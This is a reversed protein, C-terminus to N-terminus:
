QKKLVTTLLSPNECAYTGGVRNYSCMVSAVHGQRVAADYAPLHIEQMTREDADSSDTMRNTEQDNLAFHKVTAAVHQSQIGQIEAVVTQGALYPDEGAYEFIRGNLPNRAIDSWQDHHM